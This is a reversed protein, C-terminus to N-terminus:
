SLQDPIPDIWPFTASKALAEFLSVRSLEAGKKYPHM